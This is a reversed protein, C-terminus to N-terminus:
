EIRKTKANVVIFTSVMQSESSEADNIIQESEADDGKGGGM